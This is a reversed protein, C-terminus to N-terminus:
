FNVQSDGKFFPETFLVMGPFELVQISSIKNNLTTIKEISEESEIKEGSFANNEFVIVKTLPSLLFSSIEDNYLIM